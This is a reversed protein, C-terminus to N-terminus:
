FPIDDLDIPEDENVEVVVDQKPEDKTPNIFYRIDMGTKGNSKVQFTRGTLESSGNKSVSEFMQGIQSSSVDLFGKDSELTYIKRFGPEYKESVLMRGSETDWKKFNWGKVQKITFTSDVLASLKTYTRKEEM